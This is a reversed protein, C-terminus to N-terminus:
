KKPDKAITIVSSQIIILKSINAALNNNYKSKSTNNYIYKVKPVDAVHRYSVGALVFFWFRVSYRWSSFATAVFFALMYKLRKSRTSIRTARARQPKDGAYSTHFCMMEVRCWSIHITQNGLSLSRLSSCLYENSM